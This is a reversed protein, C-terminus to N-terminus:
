PHMSKVPACPAKALPLHRRCFDPAVSHTTHHLLRLIEELNRRTHGLAHSSARRWHRRNSARGCPPAPGRADAIVAVTFAAMFDAMFAAVSAEMSGTISPEIFGVMSSANIGSITSIM